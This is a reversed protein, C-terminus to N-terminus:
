ITLGTELKCIQNFETITLYDAVCTTFYNQMANEFVKWNESANFLNRITRQVINVIKKKTM